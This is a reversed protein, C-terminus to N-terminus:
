LERFRTRNNAQSRRVMDHRQLPQRRERGHHQLRHRVVPEDPVVDVEPIEEAHLEAADIRNANNAQAPPVDVHAIEEIVDVPAADIPAADVPAADVPAADVPAANNQEDDADQRRRREQRIQYFFFGTKNCKSFCM